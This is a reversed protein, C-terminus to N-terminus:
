VPKTPKTTQLGAMNLRTARKELVGFAFHNLYVEKPLAVGQFRCDVNKTMHTIVDYETYRFVNANNHTIKHAVPVTCRRGLFSTDGVMPGASIDKFQNRTVYTM